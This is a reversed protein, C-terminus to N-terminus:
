RSSSQVEGGGGEQRMSIRGTAGLIRSSVMSLKRTLSVSCNQIPLLSLFLRLTLSYTYTEYPHSFYVTLGGVGGEQRM